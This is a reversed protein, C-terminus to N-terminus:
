EGGGKTRYPRSRDDVVEVRAEVKGLREGMKDRSERLERFGEHLTQEVRSLDKALAAITGRMLGFALAATGVTGLIGLATSVWSSVSGSDM